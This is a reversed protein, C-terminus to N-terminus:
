EVLARWQAIRSLEEHSLWEGEVGHEARTATVAEHMHGILLLAGRLAAELQQERGVATRYTENPHAAADSDSVFRGSGANKNIEREAM